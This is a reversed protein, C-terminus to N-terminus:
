PRDPRDCWRARRQGNQFHFAGRGELFEYDGEPGGGRQWRIARFSGAPWQRVKESRRTRGVRRIPLGFGSGAAASLQRLCRGTFASRISARRRTRSILDLITPQNDGDLDGLLLPLATLRATALLFLAVPLLLSGTFRGRGGLNEHCENPQPQFKSRLNAWERLVNLCRGM